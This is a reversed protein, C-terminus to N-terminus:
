PRNGVGKSKRRLVVTWSKEYMANYIRDRQIEESLGGKVINGGLLARNGAGHGAGGPRVPLLVALGEGIILNRLLFNCRKGVLSDGDGKPL